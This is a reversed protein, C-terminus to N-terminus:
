IIVGTAGPRALCPLGVRWRNVNGQLLERGISSDQQHHIHYNRTAMLKALKGAKVSMELTEM